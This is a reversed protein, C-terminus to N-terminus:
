KEKKDSGLPIYIGFYPTIYKTAEFTDIGDVEVRAFTWRYDAGFM